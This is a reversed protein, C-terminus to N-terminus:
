AEAGEPALDAGASDAALDGSPDKRLWGALFISGITAGCCLLGVLGFGALAGTDNETLLLGGLSTALGAAFQQVASNCSMFSGRNAPAASAAILAMAPVMRGSMAVMFITTTSLVLALGLGAPMNTLFLIPATTFVVLVRFILLKGFRDALRGFLTMTVLTALGGFLYMFKLDRQAIGVNGTLYTPLYPGIMFSSFILACTLAYARLHNPDFLVTRLSSGATQGAAASLHGRLPPLAVVALVLVVASLGGLVYFATQWGSHEQLYLGAPVGVISAISFASMVVGMALGRRHDPFADGVIALVVSAAVGGFAGAVIRAAVLPLFDPAVACLLTSVTFGGYLCLLATKRDFRDIFQAALFGALGASITYASVVVGFKFTSLGMEDHFVPGLPMIIIFDVIHTFQVAALVLLLLLERSSLWGPQTTEQSMVEVM